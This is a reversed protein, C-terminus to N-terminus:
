VERGGPAEGGEAGPAAAVFCFWGPRRVALPSHSEGAGPSLGGGTGKDTGPGQRGFGAWRLRSTHGGRAAGPALPHLSRPREKAWKVFVPIEESLPLVGLFWTKEEAWLRVGLGQLLCPAGWYRSSLRGVASPLQNHPSSSLRSAPVRVRPGTVESRVPGAAPLRGPGLAPSCHKRRQGRKERSRPGIPDSCLLCTGTPSLLGKLHFARM